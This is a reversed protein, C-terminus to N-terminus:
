GSHRARWIMRRIWVDCRSFRRLYRIVDLGLSLRVTANPSSRCPRRGRRPPIADETPVGPNRHNNDDAAAPAYDNILDMEHRGGIGDLLEEALTQVSMETRRARHKFAKHVLACGAHDLQHDLMNRESPCPM